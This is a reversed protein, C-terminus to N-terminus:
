NKSFAYIIGLRRIFFFTYVTLIRGTLLMQSQFMVSLISKIYVHITDDDQYFRSPIMKFINTTQFTIKRRAVSCRTLTIVFLIALYLIVASQLPAFHYLPFLPLHPAKFISVTRLTLSRFYVCGARLPTFRLCM